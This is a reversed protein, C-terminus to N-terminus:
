KPPPPAPDSKTPQRTTSVRKTGRPSTVETTIVTFDGEITIKRTTTSGAMATSQNRVPSAYTTTQAAGRTTKTVLAFCLRCRLQEYVQDDEEVRSILVRHDEHEEDRQHVAASPLVRGRSFALVQAVLLSCWDDAFKMLGSFMRSRRLQRQNNFGQIM